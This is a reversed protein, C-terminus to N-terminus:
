AGLSDKRDFAPLARLFPLSASLLPSLSPWRLPDSVSRRNAKAGGGREVDRDSEDRLPPALSDNLRGFEDERRSAATDLLFLADESTTAFLRYAGLDDRGEGAPDFAGENPLAAMLPPPAGESTVTLWRCAGLDDRGDLLLPRLSLPLLSLPPRKDRDSM